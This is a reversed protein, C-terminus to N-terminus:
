DLIERLKRSLDKLKFPKQIFGQCGRELIETAQGNISYGSSLLVKIEPNIVKLRDYAEGGGMDPMIMDIIVMDIWDSNKKYIDIAETGSKAILVNYGMKELFQKGVDIILDEDDLFLVTESGQLVEKSLEKEETVEKESAPLFINFTTGKGKESNVNIFGFHNKIIGYVSALGLGTGRGMEKTTFFPEFIRQLTTEDMGVGTDTVSIKVFNGSQLSYPKVDNADLTVNKTKITLNGGGLMAQWANVYLNLLVQELQGQDVEVTWIDNGYERQINIEKKTRGFMDSSRTILEHLDIPKVDYKGKMSLGLLQKTLISASHAYHEIHKLKGYHPHSPEIDVLALSANGQIGMLLNNYDHAIGGALTGIAEMKQAQQFLKLSQAAEERAQELQVDQEKVMENLKIASGKAKQLLRANELAFGIHGLLTTLFSVDSESFLKKNGKKSLNLVGMVRNHSRLPMCIFSGTEYKPDNIKQFRVDQTVDEVLLTEGSQAVQGAIGEGLVVRTKNMLSEDLGESTAITLFQSEEDILMISGIKANVSSMTRRLVIQLVENINPIRSVLETMESLTHLKGVLNELEKTHAQLSVLTNNFSDAIRAMETFEVSINPEGLEILEGQEVKTFESALMRVNKAIRIFFMYGLIAFAVGIGLILAVHGEWVLGYKESVYLFSLM